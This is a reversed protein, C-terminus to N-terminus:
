HASPRTTHNRLVSLKVGSAMGTYFGDVQVRRAPCLRVRGGVGRQAAASRSQCHQRASQEDSEGGAQRHASARIRRGSPPRRHNIISAHIVAWRAGRSIIARRQPDARTQAVLKADHGPGDGGSKVGVGADKMRSVRARCRLKPPRLHGLGIAPDHVRQGLVGLDGRRRRASRLRCRQGVDLGRCGAVELGRAKPGQTVDQRM